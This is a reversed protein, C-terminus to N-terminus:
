QHCDLSSTKAYPSSFRKTLSMGKLITGKFSKPLTKMATQFKGEKLVNSQFPRSQFLVQSNRQIM